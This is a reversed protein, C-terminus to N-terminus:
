DVLEALVRSVASIALLTPTATIEHVIRKTAPTYSMCDLVILEPRHAALAEAARRIAGDDASPALVDAKVEIGPRQWKRTLVGLQEALPVLLGLRGRPLLSMAVADFVRSPYVVGADGEIPPFEGTCNFLLARAGDARLRQLTAPARSLVARKSLKVDRGDPLATYLTDDDEVPACREIETPSLGDLCGRLVVRTGPPLHAALRAAIDDRPAQGIVAIGVTAGM